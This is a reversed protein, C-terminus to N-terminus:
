VGGRCCILHQKARVPRRPRRGRGRLSANGRAGTPSPNGWLHSSLLYFLIDMNYYHAEGTAMYSEDACTGWLKGDAVSQIFFSGDGEGTSTFVFACDTKFDGRHIKDSKYFRGKGNSGNVPDCNLLGYIAYVGGDKIDAVNTIKEGLVADEANVCLAAAFLFFLSFLINKRM